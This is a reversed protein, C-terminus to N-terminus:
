QRIGRRSSTSHNRQTCPFTTEPDKSFWQLNQKDGHHVITMMGTDIRIPYVIGNKVMTTPRTIQTVTTIVDIARVRDINMTWTAILCLGLAETAVRQMQSILNPTVIGLAVRYTPKTLHAEMMQTVLTIRTVVIGRRRGPFVILRLAVPTALRIKHCAPTEQRLVWGLVVLDQFPM